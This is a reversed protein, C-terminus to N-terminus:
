KKETESKKESETSTEKNKNALDKMHKAIIELAEKLTYKEKPEM